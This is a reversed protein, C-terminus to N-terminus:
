EAYDRCRKGFRKNRGCAQRDAIVIIHACGQCTGRQKEEYVVAPDRAMARSGANLPHLRSDSDLASSV